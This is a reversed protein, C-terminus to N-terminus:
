AQQHYVEKRSLFMIRYVFKRLTFSCLKFVRYTSSYSAQFSTLRFGLDFIGKTPIPSISFPPLPPPGLDFDFKKRKKVHIFIQFVPIRYSKVSDLFRTSTFNPATAFEAHKAFHRSIYLIERILFFRSLFADQFISILWFSSLPYFKQM